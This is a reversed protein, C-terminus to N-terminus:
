SFDEFGIIILPNATLNNEFFRDTGDGGHYTAAVPNRLITGALSDAGAGLSIKIVANPAGGDMAVSDTGSGTSVTIRNGGVNVPAQIGNIGDGLNIVLNKAVTIGLTGEWLDSGQGTILSLNGGITVGGAIGYVFRNDGNGLKLTVDKDITGSQINLRDNGAGTIMTLRGNITSGEAINFTNDGAPDIFTVNGGITSDLTLLDDGRGGAYSLAGGINVPETGERRITADLPNRANNFRLSGEVSIASTATFIGFEIASFTASGRITTGEGILFSDEGLRGNYVLSKGIVVNAGLTLSQAADNGNLVLAGNIQSGATVALAGTGIATVKLSGTIGGDTLNANLTADGRIVAKINKVGTFTGLSTAGDFVEFSGATEVIDISTTAPTGAITLLGASFKASLAAPAIRPELGEIDSHLSPQNSGTARRTLVCVVLGVGLTLALVM